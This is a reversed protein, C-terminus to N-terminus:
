ETDEEADFGYDSCLRMQEEEVTAARKEVEKWSSHGWWCRPESTGRESQIDDELSKIREAVEPYEAELMVLEEDRGAYAGCLCEGSMHLNEVVPNKPLDHMEMYEEIKSDRWDCLPAHWIFRDTEERAEVRGMRNQSEHRRVGTYYHPKGDTETAVSELVREKLNTYMYLHADAGPFGHKRVWEEYTDAKQPIDENSRVELSWGFEDCVDRVFEQTEPVGIGTDIHLVEDALNSTM